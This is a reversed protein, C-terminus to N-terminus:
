VPVGNIIGCIFTPTLIGEFHHYYCTVESNRWHGPYLGSSFGHGIGLHWVSIAYFRLYRETREPNRIRGLIPGKVRGADLQPKEESKATSLATLGSFILICVIFGAIIKTKM